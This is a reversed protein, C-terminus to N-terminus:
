IKRLINVINDDIPINSNYIVKESVGIIEDPMFNLFTLFTKLSRYLEKDLKFFLIRTACEIGFVNYFIVLHNLILREKLVNTKHYKNLLRKIYKVRNLDERFEEISQCSPNDYAKMAYLVLNEDTLFDDKLM